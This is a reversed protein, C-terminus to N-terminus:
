DISERYPDEQVDKRELSSVGPKYASTDSPTVKKETTTSADKMVINDSDRGKSSLANQMEKRIPRFVEIAIDNVIKQALDQKIGVQKAVNNAMNQPDELGLLTLMIENELLVWQDLHLKYKASLARLKQEVDANQIADQVAEPLEAFRKEVLTEIDNAM